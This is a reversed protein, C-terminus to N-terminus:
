GAPPWASPRPGWLPGLVPGWPWELVPGPRSPGSPACLRPALWPAAGCLTAAYRSTVAVGVAWDLTHVDSKLTIDNQFGDFPPREMIRSLAALDLEPINMSTRIGARSRRDAHHSMVAARAPEPNCTAPAPNAIATSAIESPPNKTTSGLWDDTSM